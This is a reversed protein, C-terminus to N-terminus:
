SVGKTTSSCRTALAAFRGLAGGPKRQDLFGLDTTRSARRDLLLSAPRPSDLASAARVAVPGFIAHVQCPTRQRALLCCGTRTECERARLKRTEARLRDQQSPAVSLRTRPDPNSRGIFRRMRCRLGDRETRRGHPRFDTFTRRPPAVFRACAIASANRQVGGTSPRALPPRVHRIRRNPRTSPAIRGSPRQHARLTGRTGSGDIPEPGAIRLIHGASSPLGRRTSGNCLRETAPRQLLDHTRPRAM